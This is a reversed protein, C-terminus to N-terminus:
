KIRKDEDVQKEYEAEFVEGESQSHNAKQSYRFFRSRVIHIKNTILKEIWLSNIPILLFLAILDTLFGPIFFLIGAVIWIGSKLLARTPIEGQSLQKQVNLLTYWGRARIMFLGFLSSLILLLILSLVGINSGIWVLLSLETYIFLFAIFLFLVLPM